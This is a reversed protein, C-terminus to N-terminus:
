FMISLTIIHLKFKKRRAWPKFHLSIKRKCTTKIEWQLGWYKLWNSLLAESFNSISSHTLFSHVLPMLPRFLLIKLNFNRYKVISRNLYIFVYTQKNLHFFLIFYNSIKINKNLYIFCINTEEFSFIFYFSELSSNWIVLFELKPLELVMSYSFFSCYARTKYKCLVWAQYTRTNHQM